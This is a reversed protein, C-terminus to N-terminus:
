QEVSSRDPAFAHNLFKKAQVDCMLEPSVFAAHSQEKKQLFDLILNALEHASNPSAFQIPVSFKKAFDILEQDHSLALIPREAMIYDYVKGPIAYDSGHGHTILLNCDARKLETLFNSRSLLPKLDVFEGVGLEITRSKFIQEEASDNFKCFLTFLPQSFKNSSLIPKIIALAELLIKPSRDGYFSGGYVFHFRTAENSISAIKRIEALELQDIGAYVVETVYSKTGVLESIRSSAHISGASKLLAMEQFSTVVIRFLKGRPNIEQNLLPDRFDLWVRKRWLLAIICAPFIIWPPPLSVLCVGDRNNKLWRSASVILSLSAALKSKNRSHLWTVKGGNREVGSALKRLRNAGSELSSQEFASVFLLKM